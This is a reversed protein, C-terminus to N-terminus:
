YKKMTGNSLNVSSNQNMEVVRKMNVVFIKCFFTGYVYQYVYSYKQFCQLLEQDHDSLAALGKVSGRVQLRTFEPSFLERKPIHIQLFQESHM